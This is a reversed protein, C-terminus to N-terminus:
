STAEAASFRASVTGVGSIKASVVAGQAVPAMPGLAGTLVVGGARLPTGARSMTDALWVAALLPNGMCASGRGTSATADDVDMTMEVDALDLGTLSVPVTGLVFRGASANDAVTDVFTIDWGLIRSDVIELAPLVFDIAAIVDAVTHTGLDLDRSLVLAVEAEVKPQMLAGTPVEEGSGHGLEAFLVGFDPRDVGLQRQVAPSTLGIKHGCLRWGREGVVRAVNRQAVAYASVSDDVAIVDRVPACPVGSVAADWLRDAAVEVVSANATGTTTM